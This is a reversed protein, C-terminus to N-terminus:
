KKNVRVHDGPYHEGLRKSYCDGCMEGDISWEKMPNFHMETEKNCVVCKHKLGLACTSKQRSIFFM